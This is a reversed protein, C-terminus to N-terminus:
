FAIEKKWLAKLPHKIDGQLTHRKVKKLMFPEFNYIM